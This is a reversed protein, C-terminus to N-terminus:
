PSPAWLRPGVAEESLAGELESFPSASALLSPDPVAATVRRWVLESPRPAVLLLSGAARAFCETGGVEPGLWWESEQSRFFLFVEKAEGSPGLELDQTSRRYVPRADCLRPEQVFREGAVVMSSPIAESADAIHLAEEPHGDLSLWSGGIEKPSEAAVSAYAWVRGGDVAPALRWDSGAFWLSATRLADTKHYVPRHNILDSALRYVGNAAGDGAMVGEVILHRPHQQVLKQQLLRVKSSGLSSGVLGTPALRVSGEPLAEAGGDSVPVMWSDVIEQPLASTSRSFVLASEGLVPSRSRGAEGAASALPLPGLRWHGEVVSCLLYLDQFARHRYYPRGDWLGPQQELMGQVSRLASPVGEGFSLFLVPPVVSTDSVKIQRDEAVKQGDWVEWPADILLPSSASSRSFAWV